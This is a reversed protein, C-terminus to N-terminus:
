PETVLDVMEGCLGMREEKLGMNVMLKRQKQTTFNTRPKLPCQAGIGYAMPARAAELAPAAFKAAKLHQGLPVKVQACCHM